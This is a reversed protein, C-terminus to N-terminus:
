LNGACIAYANDTKVLIDKRAHVPKVYVEVDMLIEVIRLLVILSVFVSVTRVCKGAPVLEVVVGVLIMEVYKVQVNRYVYVSVTRVHKEAPVHEVREEVVTIVVLKVMAI